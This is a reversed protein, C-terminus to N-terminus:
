SRSGGAELRAELGRILADMGFHFQRDCDWTTASLAEIIYPFEEPTLQSFLAMRDENSVDSEAGPALGVEALVLGMVLNAMANLGDLSDQPSFGGKRLIGIGYESPRLAALSTAPRTALVPLARPHRRLVGRYIEAALKFHDQWGGPPLEMDLPIELYVADVILDLLADKSPVWHYIAMPDVGLERGLARMTLAALGDRDVIRQAAAVVRQPSHRRRTTAAAGVKTM